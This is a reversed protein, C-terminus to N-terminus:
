MKRVIEVMKEVPVGKDRCIDELRETWEPLVCRVQGREVTLEGETLMECVQALLEDGTMDFCAAMDEIENVVPNQPVSGKLIGRITESLNDGRRMLDVYLDESIRLKVTRDKKEETPRGM